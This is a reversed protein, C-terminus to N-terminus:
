ETVTTFLTHCVSALIEPDLALDVTNGQVTIYSHSTDCDNAFNTYLHFDKLQSNASRVQGSCRHTGDTAPPAPPPAPPEAPPPPVAAPTPENESDPEVKPIILYNPLPGTPDDDDPITIVEHASTAASTFDLGSNTAAADALEHWRPTPDPTLAPDLVTSEPTTYVGPMEAPIDPFPASPQVLPEDLEDDSFILEEHCWNLFALSTPRNEAQALKDVQARIVDSMPLKTFNRRM